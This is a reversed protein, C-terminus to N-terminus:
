RLKVGEKMKTKPSVAHLETLQIHEGVVAKERVELVM